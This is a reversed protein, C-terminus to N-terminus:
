VLCRQSNGQFSVRKIKKYTYDFEEKLVEKIM